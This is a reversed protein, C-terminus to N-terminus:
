FKEIDLTIPMFLHSHLKSCYNYQYWLFFHEHMYLPTKNLQENGIKQLLLAFLQSFYM